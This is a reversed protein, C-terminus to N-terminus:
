SYQLPNDNGDGSSGPDQGLSQIQMEQTAPLSKVLQAALSAWGGLLRVDDM